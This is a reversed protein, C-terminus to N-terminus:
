GGGPTIRIEDGERVTQELHNKLILVRNLYINVVQLLAGDAAFLEPKIEPKREVVLSLCEGITDGQVKFVHAKTIQWVLVV